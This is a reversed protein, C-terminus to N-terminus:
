LVEENMYPFTIVCYTHTVLSFFPFISTNIFIHIKNLRSIYVTVICSILAVFTIVARYCHYCLSLFLLLSLSLSSSPRTDIVNVPAFSFVTYKGRARNLGCRASPPVYTRLRYTAPPASPFSSSPSLPAVLFPSPPSTAGPSLPNM